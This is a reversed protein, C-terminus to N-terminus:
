TLNKTLDIYDKSIFTIELAIKVKSQPFREYQYYFPRIHTIHFEVEADSSDQMVKGLGDGLTTKDRHPYFYIDSHNFAYIEEFKTVQDSEKWLYVIVKFSSYDGLSIIDRVGTIVSENIIEDPEAWSPILHSYDLTVTEILETSHTWVTPTTGTATFIIATENSAAGVNTFDDPAGGNTKYDIITYTKGIVLLGSTLPSSTLTFKPAGLGSLLAM